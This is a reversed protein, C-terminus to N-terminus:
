GVVPKPMREMNDSILRLQKEFSPEPRMLYKLAQGTLWLSPFDHFQKIRLRLNRDVHAPAYVQYLRPIVNFSHLSIASADQLKSTENQDIASALRDNPCMYSSAQLFFGSFNAGTKFCFTRNLQFATNICFTMFHIQSGFGYTGFSCELTRAKTLNSPHQLQFMESQIEDSLKAALKQKFSDENDNRMKVLYAEM